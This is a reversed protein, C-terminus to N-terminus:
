GSCAKKMRAFGLKLAKLRSEQKEIRKKLNKIKLKNKKTVRRKNLKKIRAQLNVISKQIVLQKQM